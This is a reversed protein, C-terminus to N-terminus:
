QRVNGHPRDRASCGPYPASTRNVAIRATPAPRRRGTMGSGTPESGSLGAPQIRSRCPQRRSRDPAPTGTRSRLARPLRRRAVDAARVREDPAGGRRRGDGPEAASCASPSRRGPSGASSAARAPHPRAGRGRAPRRDARAARRDGPERGLLEVALRCRRPWRCARRPVARRAAAHHDRGHRGDRRVRARRRGLRRLHAPLDPRRRRDRRGRRRRDRGRLAQEVRHLDHRADPRLRQGPRPRHRRPPRLLLRAPRRAPRRRDAPERVRQVQRGRRVRDPRLDRQDQAPRALPERRRVAIGDAYQLVVVSRGRAIGKRAYDARDKM